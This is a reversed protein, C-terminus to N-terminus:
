MFEYRCVFPLSFVKMELKGTFRPSLDTVVDNEVIM